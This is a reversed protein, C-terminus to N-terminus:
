FEFEDNERVIKIQKSDSFFNKSTKLFNDDYHTLMIKLDPFKKSLDFINSIDVHATELILIDFNEDDLFYLDEISSIDASVAIKINDAYIAFSSSFINLEEDNAAYPKYKELHSNPFAKFIFSDSLYIKNNWEFDVINVDFEFREFFILNAKLIQILYKKSRNFVFIKLEKERNSHKLYTLLGSLGNVHDAHFHSIIIADINEPNENYKLLSKVCGEGCDFLLNYNKNKLLFASHFLELTPYGSSVGLFKIKISM